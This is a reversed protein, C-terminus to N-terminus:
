ALKLLTRTELTLRMGATGSEVTAFAGVITDTAKIKRMAKSDIVIRAVAADTQVLEAETAIMASLTGTWYWFWGDWAQDTIPDPIATAGIGAANQSVICLGVAVRFGDGVATASELQVLLEGRTRVVTLGDSTAQAADGFVGTISTTLLGSGGRAGIDWSTKRASGGTRPFRLGRSRPM